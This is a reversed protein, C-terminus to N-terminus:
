SNPTGTQPLNTPRQGYIFLKGDDVRLDRVELPIPSQRLDIEVGWRPALADIIFRPLSTKEVDIQEVVFAVRTREEIAFHGKVNLGITRGLLNVSGQLGTWEKGLRVQFNRAKENKAWIYNNLDSETIIASVQLSDAAKIGFGNGSKLTGRDVVLNHADVLFAEVKLDNIHAQRVDITLDQVKGQLLQWAPFAKVDVDVLEAPGATERIGAALQSEVMRPLILQSGTFALSLAIIIIISSRVAWGGPIAYRRAPLKVTKDV